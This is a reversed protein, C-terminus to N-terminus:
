RKWRPRAAALRPVLEQRCLLLARLAQLRGAADGDLPVERLLLQLPRGLSPRLQTLYAQLEAAEARGQREGELRQVEALLLARSLRRLERHLRLYEAASLEGRPAREELLARLAAADAPCRSRWLRRRLAEVQRAAAGQLRAGPTAASM